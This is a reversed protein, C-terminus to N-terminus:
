IKSINKIQLVPASFSLVNEEANFRDGFLDRAESASFPSIMTIMGMKKLEKHGQIRVLEGILSGSLEAPNLVLFEAGNLSEVQLVPRQHNDLLIIGSFFKEEATYAKAELWFVSIGLVALVYSTFLLRKIFKMNQPNSNEFSTLISTTM